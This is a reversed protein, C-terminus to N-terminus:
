LRLIFSQHCLDPRSPSSGSPGSSHSCGTGSRLASCCHPVAVAGWWGGGGSHWPFAWTDCRSPVPTPQLLLVLIGGPLCEERAAGGVCGRGRLGEWVAGGQAVEGQVAGEPLRARLLEAVPEAQPGPQETPVSIRSVFTCSVGPFGHHDPWPCPIDGDVQGTQPGERGSDLCVESERAVPQEKEGPSGGSGTRGPGLGGKCEPAGKPGM